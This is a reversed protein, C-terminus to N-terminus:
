PLKAEGTDPKNMQRILTVDKRIRGRKMMHKYEPEGRGRKM